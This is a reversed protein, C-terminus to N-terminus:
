AKLIKFFFVKFGIRRIPGLTLRKELKQEFLQYCINKISKEKKKKKKEEKGFVKIEKIVVQLGATRCKSSPSFQLGRAADYFLVM